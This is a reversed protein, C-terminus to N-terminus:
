MRFFRRAQSAADEPSVGYSDCLNRALQEIKANDGSQITQIMQQANPNNAIAPNNGILNLAFQRIDM